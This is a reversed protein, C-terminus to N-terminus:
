NKQEEYTLFSDMYQIYEEKTFVPHYNKVIEKAKVAGNRLLRYASLAFIKATVIYALEEDVIDFDVTHLGNVKGGTNFTLVPHIHQVDGVDTSGGSHHSIDKEVVTYEKESTAAAIKAAAFVDEDAPTKLTPLYGPATTIQCTAGIAAAGAKFARDTKFAADAIADKNSARVLTEIM